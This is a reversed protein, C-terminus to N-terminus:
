CRSYNFISSGFFYVNGEPFKIVFEWSVRFNKLIGGHGAAHWDNVDESYWHTSTHAHDEPVFILLYWYCCRVMTTVGGAYTTPVAVSKSLLHVLEEDVGLQHGEVDVGHVLFEACRKGLRELTGPEVQV